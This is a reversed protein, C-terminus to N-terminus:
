NLKKRVLALLKHFKMTRTIIERMFEDQKPVLDIPKKGNRDEAILAKRLDVVAVKLLLRVIQINGEACAIHLANKGTYDSKSIMAGHELLVKVVELHAGTISEHLSTRQLSCALDVAAGNQLLNIVVFINGHLAALNLPPTGALLSKNVSYNRLEVQCFTHLKDIAHKLSRAPFVSFAVLDGNTLAVQNVASKSHRLSVSSSLPKPILVVKKLNSTSDNKSIIKVTCKETPIFIPVKGNWGPLIPFEFTNVFDFSNTVTIGYTQGNSCLSYDITRMNRSRSRSMYEYNNSGTSSTVSKNEDDEHTYTFQLFLKQNLTNVKPNMIIAMGMKIITKQKKSVVPLPVSLAITQNGQLFYSSCQNMKKEIEHYVFSADKTDELILQTLCDTFKTEEAPSDRILNVFNKRVRSSVSVTHPHLSNSLDHSGFRERLGPNCRMEFSPSVMDRVKITKSSILSSGLFLLEEVVQLSSLIISKVTKRAIKKILKEYQNQYDSHIIFKQYPIGTRESQQKYKALESLIPLTSSSNRILPYSEFLKKNKEWSNQPNPTIIYNEKM